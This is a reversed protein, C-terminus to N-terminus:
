ESAYNGTAGSLQEAQVLNVPGQFHSPGSIAMRLFKTNFGRRVGKEDVRMGAAPASDGGVHFLMTTIQHSIGFGFLNVNTPLGHEPNNSAPDVAYISGPAFSSSNYNLLDVFYPTLVPIIFRHKKESLVRIHIYQGMYDLPFSEFSCEMSYPLKNQKYADYDSSSIIIDGSSVVAGWGVIDKSGPTYLYDWGDITASLKRGGIDCEANGKLQFESQVPLALGWAAEMPQMMGTAESDYLSVVAKGELVLRAINISNIATLNNPMQNSLQTYYSVADNCKKEKVFAMGLAMEADNKRKGATHASLFNKYAEVTNLSVAAKWASEERREPSCSVVIFLIITISLLLVFRIQAM